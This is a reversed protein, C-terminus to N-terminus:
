KKQKSIFDTLIGQYEKNEFSNIVESYKDKEVCNLYLLQAAELKEREHVFKQLVMWVHELSYCHENYTKRLFDLRNYDSNCNAVLGAYNLMVKTESATLCAGSKLNRYNGSNSFFHKVDNITAAIQFNGLLVNKGATDVLNFYAFHMIRLRDIEFEVLGLLSNLQAVSLCNYRCTNEVVLTKETKLNTKAILQRCFGMYDAPMASKCVVQDPLNNFYLPNGNKLECFHGLLANNFDSISDSAQAKPVLTTPLSFQPYMGSFEVKVGGKVPKLYFNFEQQSTKYGKDLLYLTISHKVDNEFEVKLYLTDKKINELLLEAQAAPNFLRENVYVKFLNGNVNLLRVSNQANMRGMFVIFCILLRIRM